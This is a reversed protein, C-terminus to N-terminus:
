PSRGEFHHVSLSLLSISILLSSRCLYCPFFCFCVSIILSSLSINLPIFYSLSIFFSNSHYHSSSLYLLVFIRNSRTVCCFIYFLFLLYGLLFPLFLSPSTCYQFAFSLYFLPVFFFLSCSLSHFLKM